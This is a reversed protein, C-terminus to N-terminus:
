YDGSRDCWNENALPQTQEGDGFVSLRNIGESNLVDRVKAQESRPQNIKWMVGNEIDNSSCLRKYPVYNWEGEVTEQATYTTYRAEQRAHRSCSGESTYRILLVPARADGSKPSEPRNSFIYVSVYKSTGPSDAGYAFYAATLENTTWDLLPSPFGYHRLKAYSTEDALDLQWGPRIPNESVPVKCVLISEITGLNNKVLEHYQGISWGQGCQRELTSELKWTYDAQGRFLIRNPVLEGTVMNREYKSRFQRVYEIYDEWTEAYLEKM